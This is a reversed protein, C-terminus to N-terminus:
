SHDRVQGSGSVRRSRQSFCRSRLCSSHRNGRSARPHPFRTRQRRTCCFSSHRQMTVDRRFSAVHVQFKLVVFSIRIFAYILRVHHGLPKSLTDFKLLCESLSGPECGREPNCYQNSLLLFVKVSNLYCPTDSLIDNCPFPMAAM